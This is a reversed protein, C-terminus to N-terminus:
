DKQSSNLREYGVTEFARVAPINYSWMSTSKWQFLETILETDWNQCLTQEKLKILHTQSLLQSSKVM